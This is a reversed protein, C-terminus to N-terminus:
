TAGCQAEGLKEKEVTPLKELAAGCDEASKSAEGIEEELKALKKRAQAIISEATDARQVIDYAEKLNISELEKDLAELEDQEPYDRQLPRMPLSLEQIKVELTKRENLLTGFKQSLEAYAKEDTARVLKLREIETSSLIQGCSDCSEEISISLRKGVLQSQEEVSGIAAKIRNLETALADKRRSFESMARSYENMAANKSKEFASKSAVLADKRLSLTGAKEINKEAKSRLRQCARHSEIIETIGCQKGKLAMIANFARERERVLCSRDQSIELVDSLRGRALGLERELNKGERSREDTTAAYQEIENRLIACREEAGMLLSHRKEVEKIDCSVADSRKKAAKSYEELKGTDCLAHFLEGRDEESSSSLDQFDNIGKQTRFATKQYIEISGFLRETWDLYPELKGDIGDLPAYGSGTDRFLWYESEKSSIGVHLKILCRYKWGTIMETLYLDRISNIHRFHDDLPGERSLLRPWPHLNEFVTTSGSGSPGILSIIGSGLSSLNLDIEDKRSKAWLGKAGRLILRDIRYRAKAPVFANAAPEQALSRAKELLGQSLKEGKARAWVKLKEEINHALRIEELFVPEEQSVNFTVMSGELAGHGLLRRMIIDPDLTAVEKKTGKIEYWVKQGKISPVEMACSAHSILHKRTPHPFEVRDVDVPEGPGHIDVIWCGAKHTEGFSLPYASGAYWARTGEIHQPQHMGGLAIYEAHLAKLSEKTFHIENRAALKVGHPTKAGEMLGHALVLSPLKSYRERMCGTAMCLTNFAESAQIDADLSRHQDNETVLWHKSPGPIGSILLEANEHNNGLLEEIQGSKLIYTMGPKLIKIGHSCEMAEFIELSGEIDYVANGYILATPACDGFARIAEILDPFLSGASNQTPGDWTNGSIAILSVEHQYAAQLICECALFFDQASERGVRLDATHLIKM